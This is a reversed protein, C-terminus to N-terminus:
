AQSTVPESHHVFGDLTAIAVASRPEPQVSAGVPGSAHEQSTSQRFGRQGPLEHRQPPGPGPGALDILDDEDTDVARFELEGEANYGYLTVV